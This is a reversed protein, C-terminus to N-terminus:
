GSGLVVVFPHGPYAGRRPVAEIRDLNLAQGEEDLDHGVSGFQDLLHRRGNTHGGLLRGIRRRSQHSTDILQHGRELTATLAPRHVVPDDM